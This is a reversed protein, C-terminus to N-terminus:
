GKLSGLMVGKIFYKQFCPYILMIPASIFFIMTYKLQQSSLMKKVADQMESMTMIKKLDVTQAILIRQLYMQLPHLNENPLYVM